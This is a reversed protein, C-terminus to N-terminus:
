LSTWSKVLKFIRLLRFGRLISFMGGEKSLTIVQAGLEILSLIVVVFDFCNFGDKFYAKCGLGIM